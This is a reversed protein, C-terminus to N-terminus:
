TRGLFSHNPARVPALTTTLPRTPRAHSCCRTPLCAHLWCVSVVAGPCQVLVGRSPSPRPTPADHHCARRPTASCLTAWRWTTCASSTTRAPRRWSAPAPTTRWGRLRRGWGCSRGCAAGRSTGCGCLATPALPPWWGTAATQSPFRSHCCPPSRPVTTLVAAGRSCPRPGPETLQAASAPLAPAVDHAEGGSGPWRVVGTCVGRVAGDHATVGPSGLLHAPAPVGPASKLMAQQMVQPASRPPSLGRHAGAPVGPGRRKSCRASSRGFFPETGAHQGCKVM